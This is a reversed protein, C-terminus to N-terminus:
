LGDVVPSLNKKAYYARIERELRGWDFDTHGNHKFWIARKPPNAAAYIVRGDKIPIVNDGTNHFILVPSALRSIKQISKFKDLMLMSVPLWPYLEQARKLTSIYPAELVVLGVKYESALQIAVGTGLSEGYLILRKGSIKREGVVYKLAARADEYLGQESIRGANGGFGRYEVALLGMGQAAFSRIKNIRGALSGANGHFYLIVPMGEDRPSIYWSALSVDDKTSLTVIEAQDLGYKTPPLLATTDPFYMLDRQFTFM